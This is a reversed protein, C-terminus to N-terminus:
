LWVATVIRANRNEPIWVVKLRRQGYTRVHIRRERIEKDRWKEQPQGITEKVQDETIGRQRMRQRAHDTFIHAM